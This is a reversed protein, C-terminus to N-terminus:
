RASDLFLRPANWFRGPIATSPLTDGSKVTPSSGLLETMTAYFLGLLTPSRTALVDTTRAGDRPRLRRRWVTSPSPCGGRPSPYFASAAHAVSAAPNPAPSDRGSEFTFRQETASGLESRLAILLGAGKALATRGTVCAGGAGAQYESISGM